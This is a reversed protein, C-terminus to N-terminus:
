YYADSLDLNTGSFDVPPVPTCTAACLLVAEHPISCDLIQSRDPNMLDTLGVLVTTM